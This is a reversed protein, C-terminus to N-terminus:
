CADKLLLERLLDLATVAARIHRRQMPGHLNVECSVSQQEPGFAVTVVQTAEDDYHELGDSMAWLQVLSYDSGTQECLLKAIYTAVSIRQQSSILQDSTIQYM